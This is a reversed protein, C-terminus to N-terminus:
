PIRFFETSRGGAGKTITQLVTVMVGVWNSLSVSRRPVRLGQPTQGYSTDSPCHFIGVSNGCYPWICGKKISTDYNWNGADTPTADLLYGQVWVYPRLLRGSAMAMRCPTETIRLTFGGLWVFSNPINMCGTGQARSKAKTLAPLLMAALIAIIAIVVLLEILTFGKQSSHNSPKAKM